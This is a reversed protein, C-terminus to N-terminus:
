RGHSRYRRSIMGMATSTQCINLSFQRIQVYLCLCPWCYEVAHPNEHRAASNATQWLIQQKGHFYM